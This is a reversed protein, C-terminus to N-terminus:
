PVAVSGTEAAAARLASRLREGRSVWGRGLGRDRGVARRRSLKHSGRRQTSTQTVADHHSRSRLPGRIVSWGERSASDNGDAAVTKEIEGSPVQRRQDHSPFRLPTFFSAGASCRRLFRGPEPRIPNHSTGGLKTSGTRSSGNEWAQCVAASASGTAAPGTTATGAAISGASRGFRFELVRRGAGARPRTEEGPNDSLPGLRGDRGRPARRLGPWSKRRM